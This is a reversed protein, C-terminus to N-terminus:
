DARPEPVARDARRLIVLSVAVTWLPLLALLPTMIVSAPLLLASIYGGRRIVIDSRRDGRILLSVAAITSSAALTGGVFFLVYGLQPLVSMM